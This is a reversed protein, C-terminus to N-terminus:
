KIVIIEEVLGKRKVLVLEGFVQIGDIVYSMAHLSPSKKCNLILHEEDLSPIELKFAQAENKSVLNDAIDYVDVEIIKPFLHENEKVPYLLQSMIASGNSKLHYQVNESQEVKNYEFSIPMQSNTIEMETCSLPIILLNPVEKNQTSCIKKQSDINIKGPPFNFVQTFKHSEKCTFEDILLWYFPKIFLMKRRVYVPDELHLYGDHSAEVYDFFTESKYLTHLPSAIKSYGWSDTCETFDINDVLTTNHASAQKLQLRYKSNNSYNFRGRDTLLDKGFAYIDFHLLDAHGHGGGLQGCHFFSYLDTTKWGSRMFFNGSHEFSKSSKKPEIAETKEYQEAAQVGLCWINSFDMKLYGRSKLTADELISASMTILDRTDISDSDGKMPQHYNPKTMYMNAYAMKKITEVLHSSVKLQNIKSLHLMGLYSLLVENHYMPSQEWHIGDKMVQIRATEELRYQSIDYWDNAEKFDIGFISFDFLGKSELVGWNSIYNWKSFSDALYKAQQYLSVLLTSFIKPTFFASEKFLYISKIWNSIRLGVDITRWALPSTEKPNSYIWNTIIDFYTEAYKEDGTIVYAKGLPILFRHRNLMYTWEPDDLPIYRWDIEQNFTVPISTKEMDWAEQFIFTKNVLQEAVKVVHTVKDPFDDKSLAILKDKESTDFGMRPYKRNLFHEKLLSLAREEKNENLLEKIKTFDPSDIDLLEFINTM